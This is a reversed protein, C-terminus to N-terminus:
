HRCVSEYLDFARFRAMPKEWWSLPRLLEQVANDMTSLPWVIRQRDVPECSKYITLVASGRGSPTHPFGHATVVRRFAITPLLYPQFHTPRTWNPPCIWLAPQLGADVLFQRTPAHFLDSLDVQFNQLAPIDTSQVEVFDEVLGATFQPILLHNSACGEVRLNSFMAFAPYTRLGFFPLSGVALIFLPCLGISVWDTCSTLPQEKEKAKLLPSALPPTSWLAFGLALFCLLVWGVSFNYIGYPPYEYFPERSGTVFRTWFLTCATLVVGAVTVVVRGNAREAAAAVRQPFLSIYLPVMVVSFPYFSSPPLPLALYIHMSIGVTAVCRKFRQLEGQDPDDLSFPLGLGVVLLVEVAAAFYPNTQLLFQTHTATPPFLSPFLQQMVMGMVQSACSVEADFWASNMKHVMAVFYLVVTQVQFATIIRAFALTHDGACLPPLAALVVSANLFLDMVIHNSNSGYLM